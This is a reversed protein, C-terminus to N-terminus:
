IFNFANKMMKLPNENFYNFCIKKPLHFKVKFAVPSIFESTM